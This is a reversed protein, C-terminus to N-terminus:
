LKAFSVVWVWPNSEWPARKGNISDWGRGWAGPEPDVGEARVDGVTIDRLQEVRVAKVELTIRSAWRPMFISPRWRLQGDEAMRELRVQHPDARYCITDLREAKQGPPRPLDPPCFPAWTERVWLRDGVVGYPCTLRRRPHGDEYYAIGTVPRQAALVPGYAEGAWEPWKVVRRTQTKRGELIARVMPGSFLIGREKM